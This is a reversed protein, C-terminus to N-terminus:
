DTAVVFVSVMVDDIRVVGRVKKKIVTRTPASAQEPTEDVRTARLEEVILDWRDKNQYWHVGCRNCLTKPGSPGKRWCPTNTTGCVGCRQKSADDKFACKTTQLVSDTSHPILTLLQFVDTPTIIHCNTGPLAVPAKFFHSQLLVPPTHLYPLRNQATIKSSSLRSQSSTPNLLCRLAAEFPRGQLRM